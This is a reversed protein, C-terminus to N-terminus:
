RVRGPWLWLGNDCTETKPVCDNVDWGGGVLCCRRLAMDQTTCWYGGLCDNDSYCAVRCLGNQCKYGFPCNFDEYVNRDQCGNCGDVVNKRIRWDALCADVQWKAGASAEDNYAVGNNSLCSGGYCDASGDEKMDNLRYSEAFPNSELVRAQNDLDTGCAGTCGSVVKYWSAMPRGDTPCNGWSCAAIVQQSPLAVLVLFCLMLFVTKSNIWREM